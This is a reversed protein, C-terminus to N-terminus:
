YHALVQTLAHGLLAEVEALEEADLEYTARTANMASLEFRAFGFPPDYVLADLAVIAGCCPARMELSDFALRHVVRGAPSSNAILLEFFQKVDINQACRSCTILDTWEGADILTTREYFECDVREVADGPGSFLQAVYAAAATAAEATPQWRPDTPILRIYWDSM